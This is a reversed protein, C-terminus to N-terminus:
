CQGDHSMRSVVAADVQTDNWDPHQERISSRVLSQVSDWLDFVMSLRQAGSMKRFVDAMQDDIVEVVPQTRSM